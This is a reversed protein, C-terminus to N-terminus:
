EDLFKVFSSSNASFNFNNNPTVLDDLIPQPNLRDQAKLMVALFMLIAVYKM